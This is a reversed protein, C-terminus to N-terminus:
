KGGGWSGGSSRGYSSGGSYSSGEDLHDVFALVDPFKWGGIAAACFYGCTLLGYTLYCWGVESINKLM